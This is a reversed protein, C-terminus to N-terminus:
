RDRQRNRRATTVLISVTAPTALSRIPIPHLCQVRPLGAVPIDMNYVNLLRRNEAIVIAITKRDRVHAKLFVSCIREGYELNITIKNDALKEESERILNLVM